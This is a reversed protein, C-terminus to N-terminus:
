PVMRPLVEFSDAVWAFRDAIVALAVTQVTAAPVVGGRGDPLARTACADAVVVAQYGLATAERATTDVALHTMFGLVIVQHIHLAQLRAALDTSAFPGNTRKALVPETSLPMVEPLGAAGPATPDFWPSGPVQHRIHFVPMGLARARALMAQARSLAGGGGALVVGGDAAFLRQQDILLLATTGAPLHEPPRLGMADRLTYSTAGVGGTEAAALPAAASTGAGSLGAVVLSTMIRHM